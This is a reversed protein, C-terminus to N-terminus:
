DMWEYVRRMKTGTKFQSKRVSEKNNNKKATAPNNKKKKKLNNV